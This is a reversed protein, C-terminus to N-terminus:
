LHQSMKYFTQKLPSSRNAKTSFGLHVDTKSSLQNCAGVSASKVTGFKLGIIENLRPTEM